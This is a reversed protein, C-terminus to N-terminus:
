RRKRSIKDRAMSTALALAGIGGAVAIWPTLTSLRTSDRPSTATSSHARGVAALPRSALPKSAAPPKSAALQDPEVLAGIPTLSTGHAFAWDLLTAAPKWGGDPSAMETLIYTKGGRKAAEIYTFKAAITHGTKIGIASEYNYLLKNHNGITFGPTWKGDASRGRVSAQKTIVYRRFDPLKMAARGILALDYASSRQDANELGSPDRAVTDSAGLDAATANMENLTNAMGHNGRALAYAADNGSAMLMGQLLTGASYATGAMIGLHTGTVSVDDPRVMIMSNQNLLPILTLATLTKMTSASLHSAHPARAVLIEGTDMDAVLFSEGPMAPPPPVGPKLNVIVGPAGLEQGGVPSSTVASATSGPDAVCFAGTASLTLSLALARAALRFSTMQLGIKTSRITWLYRHRPAKIAGGTREKVTGCIASITVCISPGHCSRPGGM